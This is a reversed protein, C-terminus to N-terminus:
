EKPEFDDCRCYPKFYHPHARGRLKWKPHRCEYITQMEGETGKLKLTVSNRAHKCNACKALTKNGYQCVMVPKNTIKHVCNIVIDHVYKIIKNQPQEYPFNDDGAVYVVEKEERLGCSYCSCTAGYKKEKQYVHEVDEALQTITLNEVQM